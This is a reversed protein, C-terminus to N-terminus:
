RLVSHKHKFFDSSSYAKATDLVQMGRRQAEPLDKTAFYDANKLAM